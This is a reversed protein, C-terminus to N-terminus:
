GFAISVMFIGTLILIKIKYAKNNQGFKVLLIACIILGAITILPNFVATMLFVGYSTQFEVLSFTTTVIPVCNVAALMLSAMIAYLKFEKYQLLYKMDLHPEYMKSRYYQASATPYDKPKSEFYMLIIVMLILNFILM